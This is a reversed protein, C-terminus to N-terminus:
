NYYKKKGGPMPPMDDLSPEERRARPRPAAAEAAQFGREDTRSIKKTASLGELIFEVASARLPAPAHDAAGAVRAAEILGPIRAARALV